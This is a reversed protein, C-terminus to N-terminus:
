AAPSVVRVAEDGAAVEDGPHIQRGRRVEAEGNV